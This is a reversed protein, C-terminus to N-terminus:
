EEAQDPVAEEYRSPCRLLIENAIFVGDSKLEGTVIAQAKGRLLEPKEGFYIIQVRQRNPDIVANELVTRLGGQNEVESLKAPIDSIFFSVKGIEEDVEITDGIVAGSIRIEKAVMKDKQDLVEGVSLFYQGAPESISRTLYAGAGVLFFMGSAFVCIVSIVVVGVM